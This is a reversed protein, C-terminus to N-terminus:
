KIFYFYDTGPLIPNKRERSGGIVRDIPVGTQKVALCAPEKKNTTARTQWISGKGEDTVDSNSESMPEASNGFLLMDRHGTDALKALPNENRM